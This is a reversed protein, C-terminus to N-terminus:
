LSNERLKPAAFPTKVLPPEFLNTGNYSFSRSADFLHSRMRFLEKLGLAEM